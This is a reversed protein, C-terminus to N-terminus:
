IVKTPEETFREINNKHLVVCNQDSSPDGCKEAILLNSKVYEFLLPLEINVISEFDDGFVNPLDDLSHSDIRNHSSCYSSSLWREDDGCDCYDLFTYKAVKCMFNHNKHESNDFCPKCISM